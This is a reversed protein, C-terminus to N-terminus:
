ICNAAGPDSRYYMNNMTRGPQWEDVGAHILISGPQVNSIRIGLLYSNSTPWESNKINKIFFSITVTSKNLEILNDTLLTPLNLGLRFVQSAQLKKGNESPRPLRALRAIM